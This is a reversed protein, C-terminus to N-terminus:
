AKCVGTVCTISLNNGPVERVERGDQGGGGQNSAFPPHVGNAEELSM